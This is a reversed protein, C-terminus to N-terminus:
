ATAGAKLLARPTVVFEPNAAMFAAAIELASEDALRRAAIQLGVPLGERTFGCPVAAV